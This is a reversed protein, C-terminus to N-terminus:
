KLYLPHSTEDAEKEFEGNFKYQGQHRAGKDYVEFGGNEFDTSLYVDSTLSKFVQRKSGGSKKKNIHTLSSDYQYGNRKAVERGVAEFTAKRHEESSSKLLDSRWKNFGNCLDRMPFRHSASAYTGQVIIGEQLWQGINSEVEEDYNGIFSIRTKYTKLKLERNEKDYILPIILIDNPATKLLYEIKGIFFDDFGLKNLTSDTASVVQNLDQKIVKRTQIIRRNLMQSMQAYHYSKNVDTRFPTFYIIEADFYKQIVNLLNDLYVHQEQSNRYFRDDLLIKYM